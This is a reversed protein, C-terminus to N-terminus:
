RALERRLEPVRVVYGGGEKAPIRYQEPEGPDGFVGRGTLIGLMVVFDLASVRADAAVQRGDVITGALLAPSTPPLQELRQAAAASRASIAGAIDKLDAMRLWVPGGAGLAAEIRDLLMVVARSVAKKSVGDSGNTARVDQALSWALQMPALGPGM